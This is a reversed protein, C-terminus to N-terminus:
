GYKRELHRKILEKDDLPHVADAEELLSLLRRAAKQSETEIPSVDYTQFAEEFMQSVSLGKKRAMKKARKVVDAEVTLTLKRKM